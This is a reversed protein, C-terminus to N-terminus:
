YARCCTCWRPPTLRTTTPLRRALLDLNLLRASSAPPLASSYMVQVANICPVLLLVPKRGWKDTAMAMLPAVVMGLGGSTFSFVTGWRAPPPARFTKLVASLPSLTGEAAAATPPVAGFVIGCGAAASEAEASVSCCCAPLPTVFVTLWSCDVTNELRFCLQLWILLQLSHATLQHGAM